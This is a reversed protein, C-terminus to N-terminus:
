GKNLFYYAANLIVAFTVWLIYPINLYAALPSIKYFLILMIVISVWMLIIEVLALGIMNFYFFIFTWAFNLLMQVLFAYIALRRKKDAELKWILFFSFGLLLYLVTWVPSFVWDPPSFPPHNLSTYWGQAAPASFVGAITGLGMTFLLSAVLKKTPYNNM